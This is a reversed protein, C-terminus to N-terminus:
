NNQSNKIKTNRIEKILNYFGIPFVVVSLYGVVMIIYKLIEHELTMPVLIYTYFYMLLGVLSILSYILIKVKSNM